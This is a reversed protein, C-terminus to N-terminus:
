TLALRVRCFLGQCTGAHCCSHSLVADTEPPAGAIVGLWDNRRAATVPQQSQVFPVFPSVRNIEPTTPFPTQGRRPGMVGNAVWKHSGMTDRSAVGLCM